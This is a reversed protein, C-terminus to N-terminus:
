NRKWLVIGEQKVQQVLLCESERFQELTYFVLDMNNEDFKSCLEGRLLRETEEKTIAMIDLDSTAIEEGRAHSGFLIIYEISDVEDTLKKIWKQLFVKKNHNLFSISEDIKM